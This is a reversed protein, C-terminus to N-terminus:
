RTHAIWRTSSGGPYRFRVGYIGAPLSHDGRNWDISHPGAAVDGQLMSSIKRGALDFLALEVRAARAADFQVTLLATSPN